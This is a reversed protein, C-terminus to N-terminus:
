DNAAVVIAASVDRMSSSRLSLTYSFNRENAWFQFLALLLQDNMTLRLAKCLEDLIFPSFVCAESGPNRTLEVEAQAFQRRLTAEAWDRNAKSLKADLAELSVM